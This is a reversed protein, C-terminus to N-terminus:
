AAQESQKATAGDIAERMMQDAEELTYFIGDKYYDAEASLVAGQVDLMEKLDEYHALSMLAYKGRGDETLFVPENVQDCFDTISKRDNVLDDLPRIMM